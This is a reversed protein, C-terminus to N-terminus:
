KTSQLVLEYLMSFTYHHPPQTCVALQLSHLHKHPQHLVWLAPQLIFHMCSNGPWHVSSRQGMKMSALIKSLPGWDLALSSKHSSSELRSTLLSFLIYNQLPNASRESVPSMLPNTQFQFSHTALDKTKLTVSLKSKYWAHLDIWAM